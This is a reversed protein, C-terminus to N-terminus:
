DQHTVTITPHDDSAHNILRRIADSVQDIKIGEHWTIAFRHDIDRRNNVIQDAFLHLSIAPSHIRWLLPAQPHRGLWISTPHTRLQRWMGQFRQLLRKM